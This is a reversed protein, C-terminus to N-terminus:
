EHRLSACWAQAITGRRSGQVGDSAGAVGAQSSMQGQRLFLASSSLYPLPFAPLSTSRIALTLPNSPPPLCPAGQWCPLPIHSASPMRRDPPQFLYIIVGKWLGPRPNFCGVPATPKNGM